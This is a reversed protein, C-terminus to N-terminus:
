VAAVTTEPRPAVAMMGFPPVIIPACFMASPFNKPAGLGLSRSFGPGGDGRPYFDWVRM